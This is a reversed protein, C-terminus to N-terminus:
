GHFIKIALELNFKRACLYSHNKLIFCHAAYRELKVAGYKAQTANLKKIGYVIPRLRREVPPGQWQHLDGPTAVDSADTDLM